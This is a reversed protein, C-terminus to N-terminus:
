SGARVAKACNMLALGSSTAITVLAEAPILPM